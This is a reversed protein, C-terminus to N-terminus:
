GLRFSFMAVGAGATPNVGAALTINYQAAASLTEDIDVVYVGARTMDIQATTMLQSTDGPHGIEGTPTTGTFPTNVVVRAEMAEGVPVVTGIAVTGPFDGFVFAIRRVLMVGAALKAETVAAAEIKPTTVALAALQTTDIGEAAVGFVVDQDVIAVTTVGVQNILGNVTISGTPGGILIDVGTAGADLALSTVGPSVTAFLLMLPDDTDVVAPDASALFADDSSTGERVIIASGSQNTGVAWDLPRILASTALVYEWVGNQTPDTQATLVIRDEPAMVEGDISAPASAISINTTSRVRATTKWQIGVSIANLQALTVFHTVATADLGSVNVFAADAANRFQFDAGSTKLRAGGLGWEVTNSVGALDFRFSTM